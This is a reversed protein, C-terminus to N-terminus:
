SEEEEDECDICQVEINYNNYIDGESLNEIEGEIEEIINSSYDNKGCNYAVEDVRFLAISASYELGCIEIDGYMEDLMNDYADEIDLENEIDQLLSSTGYYEKDNFIYKAM